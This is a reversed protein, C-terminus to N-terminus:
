RLLPVLKAEVAKVRSRSVPVVDGGELEILRGGNPRPRIELVSGISVIAGRHVRVFASPDLRRELAAISTRLLYRSEKTHLRVYYDESEIWRISAVPVLLQRGRQKVPIRELYRTPLPPGQSSADHDQALQSALAAVRQELVRRRAGDLVEYFREDSFPKLLYDAAKLEFARVAHQDYATILVVAPCEEPGLEALLDIGRVGPMEIDLLVIDPKSLRIQERAQHGNSCEGLLEVDSARQVLTVLTERALPEDDVVLVSLPTM